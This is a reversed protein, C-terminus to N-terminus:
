LVEGLNKSLIDCIYTLIKDKIYFLELLKEFRTTKIVFDFNGKYTHTVKGNEVIVYPIDYNQMLNIYKKISNSPIGVKKTDSIDTLKLNLINNLIYADIGLSVYFAGSKLLLICGKNEAKIKNFEELLKLFSVRREYISTLL